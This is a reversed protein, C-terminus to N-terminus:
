RTVFVENFSVISAERVEVLDIFETSTSAGTIRSRVNARWHVAAQGRDTTMALVTLDAPKFTKILLGLLPRFEAAGQAQIVVPRGQSGGSAIQFRADVAFLQCVGELDGRARAAYLDRMLHDIDTRGM